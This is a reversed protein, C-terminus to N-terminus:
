VLLDGCLLAAGVNLSANEYCPDVTEIGQRPIDRRDYPPALSKPRLLVALDAEKLIVAKTQGRSYLSCTHFFFTTGRLGWLNQILRRKKYRELAKLDLGKEQM